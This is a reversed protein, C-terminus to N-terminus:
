LVFKYGARHVTRFHLPKRPNRELKQRLRLIHTKITGSTPHSRNDWAENLLESDSIVRGQNNVFFRLMKFEQPTVPVSKGARFLEMSLFNVVVDDFTFVDQQTPAQNLRRLVARVRALLERPSFPKTIYDDAGLELLLVKDFEDSASSLVLIPVTASRSRIERCLDPGSMGPLRLELIVARPAAARFMDLASSGDRAAAFDFGSSEFTKRLVSHVAPDDDVVLVKDM